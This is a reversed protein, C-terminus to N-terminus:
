GISLYFNAKIDLLSKYVHSLSIFHKLLAELILSVIRKALLLLWHVVGCGCGHSQWLSLFLFESLFNYCIASTFLFLKKIEFILFHVFFLALVSLQLSPVGFSLM